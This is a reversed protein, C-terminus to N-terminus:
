FKTIRANRPYLYNLESVPENLDSERTQTGTAWRNVRVCRYRKDARTKHASYKDLDSFIKM